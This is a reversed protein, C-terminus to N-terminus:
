RQAHSVMCHLSIANCVVLSAIQVKNTVHVEIKGEFSPL